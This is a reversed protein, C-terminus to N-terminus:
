SEWITWWLKMKVTVIWIVYPRNPYLAIFTKSLKKVPFLEM